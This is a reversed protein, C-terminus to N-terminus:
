DTGFLRDGADGLGPLIYGKENLKEDVAAAYVQVEPHAANLTNLGEPSALLCIFKIQTAGEKKLYNIAAVASGGTALMPDALAVLTSSLDTPLKCYYTDPQLTEENRALGIYGVSSHPLLGLFGDMMGLGARLIPVLCIKEALVRCPTSTLPTEVMVERTACDRFAEYLILTTLNRTLARFEHSSTKKDRLRALNAQVLPHEILTAPPM